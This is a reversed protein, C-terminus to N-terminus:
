RAAIFGFKERTVDTDMSLVTRIMDRAPKHERGPM